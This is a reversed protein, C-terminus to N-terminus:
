DEKPFDKGCLIRDDTFTYIRSKEVFFFIDNIFMVCYCASYQAKHCVETFKMGNAIHPVQKPKVSFCIDFNEVREM